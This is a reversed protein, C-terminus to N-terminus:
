RGRAAPGDLRLRFRRHIRGFERYRGVQEFGQKEYFAVAPENGEDVSLEYAPAGADRMAKTFAAVLQGGLGATRCEPSVALYTLEPVRCDYSGEDPGSMSKILRVFASPRRLTGFLVGSIIGIPNSRAAAGKLNEPHVSGFVFGRVRRERLFVFGAAGGSRVCGSYFARAASPGLESLLGTLTECHLAAAQEVHEPGLPVIM